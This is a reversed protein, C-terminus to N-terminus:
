NWKLFNFHLNNSPMHHRIEETKSVNKEVLWIIEKM